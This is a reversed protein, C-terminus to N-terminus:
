HAGEIPRLVGYEEFRTDYTSTVFVLQVKTNEVGSNLVAEELALADVDRLYVRTRGEPQTFLESGEFSVAFFSNSCTTVLTQAAIALAETKDGSFVINETDPFHFDFYVVEDFGMERLELGISALYSVTGEKAPNLWYCGESDMWLYGGSTPLGSRTNALGYERDRLAPVRAIAYYGSSKLNAILEDVGAIDASDSLPRGTTTSYYFTGYISKMDLMVPTGAPLAQIKEWVQAPNSSVEKGSIYYGKLQVMETSLNVKDEGENYYIEVPNETAPPIAEEGPVTTQPVNFDIVAGQDRTYVVFRQLWLIWLGWVIVGVVLLILMTSALRKLNQQTRYPISM